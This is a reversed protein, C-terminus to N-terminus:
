RGVPHQRGLVVQGWGTQEAAVAAAAVVVALDPCAVLAVIGLAVAISDSGRVRLDSALRVRVSGAVRGGVRGVVDGGAVVGFGVRGIRNGEWRRQRDGVVIGFDPVADQGRGATSDLRLLLRIGTGPMACDGPDWIQSNVADFAGIPAETSVASDSGAAVVALEVSGAVTAVRHEVVSYLPIGATTARSCPEVLSV